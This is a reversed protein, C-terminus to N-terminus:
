VPCDDANFLDDEDGAAALDPSAPLPAASPPPRPDSVTESSSLTSNEAQVPIFEASIPCTHTTGDPMAYQLRKKKLHWASRFLRVAAERTHAM